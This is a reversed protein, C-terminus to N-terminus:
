HPKVETKKKKPKLILYAVGLGLMSLTFAAINRRGENTYSNMYRQIGKLEPIDSPSDGAM